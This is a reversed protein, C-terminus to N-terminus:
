KDKLIEALRKKMKEDNMMKEIVLDILNDVPEKEEEKAEMADIKERLTKVEGNRKKLAEKVEEYKTDPIKELDSVSLLHEAEKYYGFLEDKQTNFYAKDEPSLAHGLMHDVFFKPIRGQNMCITAFSARLAHPRNPNYRQIAGNKVNWGLKQCAQMMYRSIHHPTVKGWEHKTANWTVFVYDDENKVKALKSIDPRGPILNGENRLMLYDEIAKRADRGLFTTFFEGSKQRQLKLITINDKVEKLDKVRLNSVENSALGSQFMTLFMARERPTCVNILQKVKGRNYEDKHNADTIRGNKMAPLSVGHFKFFSQIAAMYTKITTDSVGEDRLKKKFKVLEHKLTKELFSRKNDEEAEKLLAIPTKDRFKCYMRMAHAYGYKTREARCDDIWDSLWQDEKMWEMIRSGPKTLEAKRKLLEVYSRSIGLETATESDKKGEKMREKIGEILKSQRETIAESIPM